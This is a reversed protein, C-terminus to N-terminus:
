VGFRKKLVEDEDLYETVIYLMEKGIKYQAKLLAVAEDCEHPYVWVSDQLRVFGFSLLDKRARDRAFRRKEEIDFVLLRWKKDWKQKKLSKKKLTYRLLERQGKETLRIMEKGNKEFISILGRQHLKKITKNVYTHTKYRRDNRKLFRLLQVANPVALTLALLGAMGVVGLIIMGVEGRDLRAIEGGNSNESKRKM